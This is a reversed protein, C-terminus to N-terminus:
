KEYSTSLEPVKSHFWTLLPLQIDFRTASVSPFPISQKRACESIEVRETRKSKTADRQIKRAKLTNSCWKM